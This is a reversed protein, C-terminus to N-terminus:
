HRASEAPTPAARRRRAGSPRKTYKSEAPLHVLDLLREASSLLRLNLRQEIFLVTLVRFLAQLLPVAFEPSPPPTTLSFITRIQEHHYRAVCKTDMIAVYYM